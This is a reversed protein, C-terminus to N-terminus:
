YDEVNAEMTLYELSLNVKSFFRGGALSISIDEKRTCSYQDVHLVSNIAVRFGSCIHCGWKQPTIVVGLTGGNM